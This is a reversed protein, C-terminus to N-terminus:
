DASLSPQAAVRHAARPHLQSCRAGQHGLRHRPPIVGSIQATARRTTSIPCRTENQTHAIHYPPCSSKTPCSPVRRDACPTRRPCCDDNIPWATITHDLRLDAINNTHTAAHGLPNSGMSEHSTATINFLSGTRISLLSTCMVVQKTRPM